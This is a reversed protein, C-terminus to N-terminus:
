ITGRKIERRWFVALTTALAFFVMLAGGKIFGSIYLDYRRTAPDYKFCKMVLRDFSTGVRGGAAELLAFKLDRPNFEVGYLYRSIKGDPSLVMVAAGHGYQNSVPDFKYKFGVAAALKQINEEEGTLFAWADRQEGQGLAQLHGRQRESAMTPTERPDISVTIGRYDEGLKLQTQIAAKNLGGLVLSCLMPCKYYVLTLVVPKGPQLLEGLKVVKGDHDRFTLETPISEGLHEVIDIEQVTQEAPNLPATIQARAALSALLVGALALRHLPSSRM